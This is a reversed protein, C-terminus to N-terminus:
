FDLLCVIAKVFVTHTQIISSSRSSANTGSHVWLSPDARAPGQIYMLQEARTQYANDGVGAFDLGIGNRNDRPERLTSHLVVTSLNCIM